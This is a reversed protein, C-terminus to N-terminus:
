NDNEVKGEKLLKDCNECYINYRVKTGGSANQGASVPRTVRKYSGCRLCKAM